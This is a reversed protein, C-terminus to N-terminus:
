ERSNANLECRAVRSCNNSTYNYMIFCVMCTPYFHAALQMASCHGLQFCFFKRSRGGPTGRYESCRYLRDKSGYSGYAVETEFQKRRNEAKHESNHMGPPPTVCARWGVTQWRGRACARARVRARLMRDLSAASWTIRRTAKM